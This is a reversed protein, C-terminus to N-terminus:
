ALVSASDAPVELPIKCMVILKGATTAQENEKAETLLKHRDSSRHEALTLMKFNTRRNVFPLNTHTMQKLKEEQNTCIKCDNEKAPRYEFITEKPIKQNKCEDM